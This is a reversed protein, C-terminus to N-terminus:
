QRLQYGQVPRQLVIQLTACGRKLILEIAPMDKERVKMVGNNHFSEYIGRNIQYDEIIKQYSEGANCDNRGPTVVSSAPTPLSIATRAIALKPSNTAATVPPPAAVYWLMYLLGASMVASILWGLRNGFM